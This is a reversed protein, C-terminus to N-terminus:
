KWYIDKKRKKSLVFLEQDFLKHMIDFLHSIPFSIPIMFFM